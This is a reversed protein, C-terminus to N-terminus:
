TQFTMPLTGGQTLSATLSKCLEAAARRLEGLDPDNSIPIVVGAAAEALAELASTPECVLFLMVGLDRMELGLQRPTKGSRAPKTDANLFAILVNRTSLDQAWPVRQLLFDIGDLHTEPPDGGGVLEISRCVAVAEDLSGGELHLIPKEGYDEDGHSGVYTTIEAVRQEFEVAFMEMITHIGEGFALSSETRDFEFAATLHIPMCRRAPRVVVSALTCVQESSHPQAKPIPAPLADLRQSPTTTIVSNHPATRHVTQTPHNMHNM